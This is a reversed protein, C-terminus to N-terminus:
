PADFVMEAGTDNRLILVSGVVEVNTMQSLTEFYASEAALDPCARRTAAIPGLAFWPYPATQAANYSNCPATGSIRGADGVNLTASAEFPTGNISTLVFSDMDAYATVTEDGCAGLFLTAAWILKM